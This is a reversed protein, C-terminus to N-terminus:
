PPRRSVVTARSSAGSGCRCRPSTPSATRARSASTPHPTSRERPRAPVRYSRGSVPDDYVFAARLHFRYGDAPRQALVLEDLPRGDDTRFPM